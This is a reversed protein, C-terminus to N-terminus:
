IPKNEFKDDHAKSTNLNEQGGKVRLFKRTKVGDMERRM